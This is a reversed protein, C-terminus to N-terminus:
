KQPTEKHCKRPAKKTSKAMKTINRQNGGQCKRSAEKPNRAMKM